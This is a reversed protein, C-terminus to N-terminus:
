LRDQGQDVGDHVGPVQARHGAGGQSVQDQAHNRGGALQGDREQARLALNGQVVVLLVRASGVVGVLVNGEGGGIQIYVASRQEGVAVPEAVGREGVGVQLQGLASELHVFGYINSGQNLILAWDLCVLHREQKNPVQHAAVSPRHSLQFIEAPQGQHRTLDLADAEGYTSFHQLVPGPVLLVLGLGALEIQPHALVALLPQHALELKDGGALFFFLELNHFSNM